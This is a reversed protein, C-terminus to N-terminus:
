AGFAAAAGEEESTKPMKSQRFFVIIILANVVLWGFQFWLSAQVNAYNTMGGPNLTLLGAQVTLGIAAGVQLSVQLMAGAVGSIEPPVSTM